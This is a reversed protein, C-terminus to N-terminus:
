YNFKSKKKLTNRKSVNLLGMAVIQQGQMTSELSYGEYDNMTQRLWDNNNAMFSEEDEMEYPNYMSARESGKDDFIYSIDAKSQNAPETLIGQSVTASALLRIPALKEQKTITQYHVLTM